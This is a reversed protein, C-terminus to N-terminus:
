AIVKKGRLGAIQDPSYGLSSLIDQTDHGIPNAAFKYEYPTKSFKIPGALQRITGAKGCPVDVFMHRARMQADCEVEAANLVPEVCADVAEFVESWEAFTKERFRARVRNKAAPVDSLALKKSALDPLGIANAFSAFFKPEMAGVSFYRSDKTEYYDYLGAGTTQQDEPEHVIGSILTDGSVGLTLAVTGDLMAVDIFQGEGTKTRSIYAALIGIIANMGGGVMDAIQTGFLSPLEDKRGAYSVLGSRALYNIDHGARMSLPGTQGYGTLSCYILNPHEKSLAEYDLGFKKMVGPRFQEIVIDYDDLLKRAIERGEEARLDLFMTRKNRYLTGALTGMNRSPIFPKRDIVLDSRDPASIKLVEAGMDALVMTCYPGPYLTTFDLIKMGDLAGM